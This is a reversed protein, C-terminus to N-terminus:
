RKRTTKSPGTDRMPLVICARADPWFERFRDLFAPTFCWDKMGWILRKPLDALSPLGKEITLLTEYSPHGPHMPIDNVFRDVAIRHSWNDYPALYGARVASTLREPHAIAMRLAARSFGNLGRLM